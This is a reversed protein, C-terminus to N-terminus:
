GISYVSIRDNGTDVVYMLVSSGQQRIIIQGPSNFGYHDSAGGAHGFTQRLTGSPTLDLLRNWSTDSVWIDGSPAVAVGEPDHINSNTITKIVSGDSANLEVIRKNLTDAVYVVGGSVTVGKPYNLGTATWDVVEAGPASGPTIRVVRSNWTDAVILDSGISTMGYPWHFQLNGTGLSGIRHGTETGSSDYQVLRNNKTDAVWETSTNTDLAIAHPWNLGDTTDGFGRTGWLFQFNGNSDFVQIRQNTTDAVYTTGDPALAFGYPKNFGGPPPTVNGIEEKTTGDHNFVVIKDAWLDAGYVLPNTGSGVVARRLQFFQGVGSGASGYTALYQENSNFEQIRSNNADAVYINDAADLSVGYPGNFQGNGSGLSGFSGIWTGTCGFEAIRHNRFDAVYIDGNSDTAADRPENLQGNGSGFGSGVTRIVAGTSPDHVHVVNASVQGDTGLIVPNGSCDVGATIGMIAGYFTPWTAIWAGTSANLVQIRNNGTDAVYIKGNYYAVDRPESFQGNKRGWNLNQWLLQGSPSYAQVGDNGTDAIYINGSPDVELGSPYMQARGSQGIQPQAVPAVAGILAPGSVDAVYHAAGSGATVTLTYAGTVSVIANLPAPGTEPPISAVQGGGPATLTMGLLASSSEGWDLSITLSGASRVAISSTSTATASADVAGTSTADGTPEAASDFTVTAGTGLTAVPSFSTSPSIDSDVSTNSGAQMPGYSYGTPLLVAVRYSGTNPTFSYTGDAASATTDLVADTSSLLQVTAGALGSEGSQRIGDQNTDSWVTGNITGTQGTTPKTVEITFNASGTKATVGIVWTGMATVQYTLVEPKNTSSSAWKVWTGTPNKLGLNLDAATNDWDLTLTLTGTTTLPLNYSKFSTGTASVSGCFDAACTALTANAVTVTYNTTGGSKASVGITWTGAPDLDYTITQPKATPSSAWKVWQGSPDRLGLTLVVSTDTWDLTITQRVPSTVNMTHTAWSNGTSSVTGSFPGYTAAAAPVPAVLAMAAALLMAVLLGVAGRGTPHPSKLPGSSRLGGFIRVSSMHSSM